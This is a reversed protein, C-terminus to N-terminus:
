RMMTARMSPSPTRPLALSTNRGIALMVWKRATADTITFNLQVGNSLWANWAARILITGANGLEEAAAADTASKCVQTTVADQQSTSQGHQIPTAGAVFGIGCAGARADTQSAGTADAMTTFLMIAQPSFGPGTFSANGTATPTTIYDLYLPLNPLRLALYAQPSGANNGAGETVTFGDSNFSTVSTRPDRIDAAGGGYSVFADVAIVCTSTALNDPSGWGIGRNTLSPRSIAAGLIVYGADVNTNNFTKNGILFLLEPAFALGTVSATGGPISPGAISGVAALTDAGGILLVGVKYAAVFQTDITIRVGDTIFSNFSARGSVGTGITDHIYVIEGTEGRVKNNTNGIGVNQNTAAWCRTNTGDCFGVSLMGENTATADATAKSVMIVVAKPTGFGSVTFDQTNGAAATSMTTRVGELKSVM